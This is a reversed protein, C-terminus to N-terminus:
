SRSLDPMAANEYVLLRDPMGTPNESLVRTVDSSCHSRPFAPIVVPFRFVTNKNTVTRNRWLLIICCAGKELMDNKTVSLFGM